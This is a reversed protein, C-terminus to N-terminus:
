KTGHEAAEHEGAEHEDDAHYSPSNWKLAVASGKPSVRVYGQM